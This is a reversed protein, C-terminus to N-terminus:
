NCAKVELMKKIKKLKASLCNPSIKQLYADIGGNKEVSRVANTSLRIRLQTGLIESSFSVNQLNPM